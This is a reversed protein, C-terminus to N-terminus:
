QLVFHWSGTSTKLDVFAPEHDIAVKWTLVHGSEIDMWVNEWSGEMTSVEGINITHDSTNAVSLYLWSKGHADRHISWRRLLIGADQQQQQGAAHPTTIILGSALSSAIGVRLVIRSLHRM